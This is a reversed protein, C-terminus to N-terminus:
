SNGPCHAAHTQASTCDGALWVADAQPRLAALYQHSAVAALLVLMLALTRM